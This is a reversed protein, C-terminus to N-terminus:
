KNDGRLIRYRERALPVLSSSTFETFIREYRQKAQEKNEECESWSREQKENELKITAIETDEMKR